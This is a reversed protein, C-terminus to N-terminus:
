PEVTEFHRVQWGHTGGVSSYSYHRPLGNGADFEVRILPPQDGPPVPRQMDERIYEFQRPVTWTEWVRRQKPEHGNVTCVIPQGGRVKLHIRDNRTTEVDLDYDAPGHLQWRAEAAGLDALTPPPTPDRQWFVMAAVGLVFLCGFTVIAVAVFHSLRM